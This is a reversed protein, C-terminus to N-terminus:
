PVPTESPTATYGAEVTQQWNPSPTMTPTDTPLPTPTWTNWPVTATPTSTNTATPTWTNWPVTATNTPTATNTATATATSTATATVIWPTQTPKVTPTITGTATPGPTFTPYPTYTAPATGTVIWPTQTLLIFTPFVIPTSTNAPPGDEVGAVIPLYSTNAVAAWVRSILIGITLLIVLVIGVM